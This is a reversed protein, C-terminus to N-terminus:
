LVIHIEIHIIRFQIWYFMSVVYVSVKSWCLYINFIMFIFNCLCFNNNQIQLQLDHKYLLLTM